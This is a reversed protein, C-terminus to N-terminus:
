WLAQQQKTALDHRVWGNDTWPIGWVLISSHTAMEKELPSEWGLSQVWMEQMALTNNVVPGGPFGALPSIVSYFSYINLSYFKCDIYSVGRTQIRYWWAVKQHFHPKQPALRSCVFCQYSILSLSCGHFYARAFKKVCSCWQEIGATWSSLGSITAKRCLAWSGRIIGTLLQAQCCCCPLGTGPFRPVGQFSPKPESSELPGKSDLVNWDQKKGGEEKRGGKREGRRGEKGQPWVPM